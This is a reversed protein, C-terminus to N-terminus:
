GGARKGTGLGLGHADNGTFKAALLQGRRGIERDAGRRIPHALAHEIDEGGAQARDKIADAHEIQKGAGAGQAEFGKRAAGRVDGENIGAGFRAAEDAVM